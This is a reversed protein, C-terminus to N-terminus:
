IKQGNGSCHCKNQIQLHGAFLGDCKCEVGLIKEDSWIFAGSMLDFFPTANKDKQSTKLRVILPDLFDKFNMTKIILHSQKRKLEKQLADCANIVM